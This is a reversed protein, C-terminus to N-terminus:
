DEDSSDSSEAYEDFNLDPSLYAIKNPTNGKLFLSSRKVKGKTAMELLVAKVDNSSIGSSLLNAVIGTVIPASMSTGSLEKPKDVGEHNVSAIQKGPALIDVCNGWNSFGALWDNTDDISGVTIADKASGPSTRCADINSNGAAVVVVLGDEVAADIAKNLISNKAAGLSLNAVAEVGLQRRNETAYELAAIVTSLSGAGYSSLAKVEVIRVDKSVGYTKSGVIGAVHTGHGNSDGSGEGTLDIGAKARGTFEPHKVEIGSDIIYVYVNEGLAKDDYIFTYGKKLKKRQSIRGLHRPPDFQEVTSLSNITIDPTIESVFPCKGLRDLAKKSFNGVFGKFKGISFINRIHDKVRLEEPYKIDSAFFQDFTEEEKLTVFYSDIAAVTFLPFILLTLLWRQMQLILKLCSYLNCTKDYFLYLNIDVLM